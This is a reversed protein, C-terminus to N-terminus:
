LVLLLFGVLFRLHVLTNRFPIYDMSWLHCWDNYERCQSLKVSSKTDTINYHRGTWKVNNIANILRQSNDQNIHLTRSNRVRGYCILKGHKKVKTM